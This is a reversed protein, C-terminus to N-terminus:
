SNVIPSWTHTLSQVCSKIAGQHFPGKTIRVVGVATLTAPITGQIWWVLTFLVYWASGFFASHVACLSAASGRSVLVVRLFFSFFIRSSGRWSSAACDVGAAQGWWHSKSNLKQKLKPCHKWRMPVNRHLSGCCKWSSPTYPQAETLSPRVEKTPTM